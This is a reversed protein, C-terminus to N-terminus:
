IGCFSRIVSMIATEREVLFERYIRRAEDDTITETACQMLGIAKPTLFHADLTAHGQPFIDASQLYEAPAKDKIKNNTEDSILTRNLM